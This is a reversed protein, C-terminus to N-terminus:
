KSTSTSKAVLFYATGFFYVQNRNTFVQTEVHFERQSLKPLLSVFPSSGLRACFDVTQKKWFQFESVLSSSYDLRCVVLSALEFLM